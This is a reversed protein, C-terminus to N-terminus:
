FILLSTLIDIKYTLGKKPFTIAKGLKTNQKTKRIIKILNLTLYGLSNTAISTIFSCGVM